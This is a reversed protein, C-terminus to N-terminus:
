NIAAGKLTAMKETLAWLARNIKVDETLGSVARTTMRRGTSSRGRQGGRLINEQIRNYVTYLNNDQDEARRVVLLKAPDIPADQAGKTGWRTMAAANAFIVREDWDLQIQKFVEKKAEIRKLTDVVTFSGEIVDDVVNGTHRVRIDDTMQGAILGNSCVMRFYGAMVQYSSSGDHSNLLIIEPVEQKQDLSILDAHRMRVMHRTFDRKGVDRCKTQRVEYPMFGQERLGDIVQITPIFSYKEGRSEHPVSAMVSPAHYSIQDNSLPRDSRFTFQKSSSAYRVTTM